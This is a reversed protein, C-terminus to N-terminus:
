KTISTKATKLFNGMNGVGDVVGGVMDSMSSVSTVSVPRSSISGQNDILSEYQSPTRPTQSLSSYHPEDFNARAQRLEELI